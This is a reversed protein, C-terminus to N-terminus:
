KWIPMGGHLAQGGLIRSVLVVDYVEYAVM